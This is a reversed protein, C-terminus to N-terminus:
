EFICPSVCLGNGRFLCGSNCTGDMTKVGCLGDAIWCRVEIEPRSILTIEDGVGIGSEPFRHM